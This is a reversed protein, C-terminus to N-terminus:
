AAVGIEAYCGRTKLIRLIQYSKFPSNQRDRHGGENVVRTIECLRVRLHKLQRAKRVVEQEHELPVLTAARGQGEVAYGYPADGGIHGYNAAKARRGDSMREAIREREFEAVLSLMGFFMKSAGNNTVPEVGIDILVLGIERQRLKEATALADSASRFLRDLKNACIIDGAKAAALMAKGAPRQALPITGSVGADVFREFEASPVGRLDAIAKNRRTQEALSTTGNAAQETTSVRSYSLFM